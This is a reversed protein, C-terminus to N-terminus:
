ASPRRAITLSYLLVVAGGSIMSWPAWEPPKLSRSPLGSEPDVFPATGDETKAIVAKDIILCEGGVICLAIGVAVFFARWM